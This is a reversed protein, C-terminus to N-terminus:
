TFLGKDRHLTFRGCQSCSLGNSGSLDASSEPSEGPDCVEVKHQSIARGHEYHM